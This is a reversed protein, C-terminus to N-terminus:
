SISNISWAKKAGFITGSRRRMARTGGDTDDFVM